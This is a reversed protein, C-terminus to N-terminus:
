KKKKLVAKQAEPVAAYASPEGSDTPKAIVAKFQDSIPWNLAIGKPPIPQLFWKHYIRNIDGSTLVNGIATDVAKKFPADDKRLMIGYPEVSLAEKSIEYDAPSKSNAALSALLIDDMVFAAARGTEVMLFAEAHDKAPMINIGLNQDANLTTLQKLNSTGSTSVVTKGKLDALTKINSSKKSLIRNATVFTTPAFAVQKQREVNNTTSGCELDVTGNAMLPIRTASTVPNMVVKLSSLGLQKQVATVIKLCLDISYGQYSQKDDLYSFPISSDRVGLTITGTEKIKKLTGTEQAQAASAIVGAGILVAIVKSLKM